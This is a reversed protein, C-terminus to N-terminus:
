AGGKPTMAYQTVGWRLPTGGQNAGQYTADYTNLKSIRDVRWRLQLTADTLWDFGGTVLGGASRELFLAGTSSYIRWTGEFAYAQQAYVHLAARFICLRNGTWTAGLEGSLMRMRNAGAYSSTSATPNPELVAEFFADANLQNEAYGVLEYEFTRGIADGAVIRDGAEYGKLGSDNGSSLNSELRQHRDHPFGEYDLCTAVMFPYLHETYPGGSPGHLTPVPDGPLTPAAPTAGAIWSGVSCYARLRDDREGRSPRLTAPRAAVLVDSGSLAVRLGRGEVTPRMQLNAGSKSDYPGVGLGHAEDVALNTAANVEAGTAVSDLKAKDAGSLFGSAGSAVAAAHLSGDTQAGHAHTHDSRSATSAAGGSGSVAVAPPASSSLATATAGTAIGDLKVKDAISLFGSAVQTADEHYRADAPLLGHAHVHDARSAQPSTGIVALSGVPLPSTATTVAAANSAVTDLKVKDAAALFGPLGATAAAHLTGGALDGHAHVHDEHSATAATGVAATGLQLPTSSGLSVGGGPGGVQDDQWSWDYDAATDKKLVQGTAGGAPGQRAADLSDLKAKDAALMFGSAVSTAVAHANADSHTGHAHAHDSRPVTSASGASGSAAVAAPTSTALVVAGRLSTSALPLNDNNQPEDDAFEIVRAPTTGPDLKLPKTM